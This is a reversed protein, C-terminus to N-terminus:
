GIGEHFVVFENELRQEVAKTEEDNYQIGKKGESLSSSLTMTCLLDDSRDVLYKNHSKQRNRRSTAKVTATVMHTLTFGTYAPPSVTSM